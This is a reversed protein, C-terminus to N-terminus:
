TWPFATLPMFDFITKLFPPIIRELCEGFSDLGDGGVGFPHARLHAQGADQVGPAGRHGVTRVDM